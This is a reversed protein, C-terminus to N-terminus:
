AALDTGEEKKLRERRRRMFVLGDLWRQDTLADAHTPCTVAAHKVNYENVSEARCDCGDDMLRHLVASWENFEETTGSWKALDTM